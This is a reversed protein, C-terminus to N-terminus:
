KMHMKCEASVMSVIISSSTSSSQVLVTTIVGVMVGVIPNQLFESKRFIEGTTRGGIIRFGLSLCDLSCVFFFLLCVLGVAKGVGKLVRRTKGKTTLEGWADGSNIPIPIDIDNWDSKEDGKKVDITPQM